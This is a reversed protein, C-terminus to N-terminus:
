HRREDPLAVWLQVGDLQGSNQMPTEESHAIGIGATMLNLEGAHMLAERGLSDHHLIEGAVLWSVTQLGIHPHPAVDMPKGSSVAIPGYRDLFGGAGVNRRQRRPLARLIRLSGLEARRAQLSEIIM